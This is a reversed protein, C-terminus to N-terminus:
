TGNMKDVTSRPTPYALYASPSGVAIQETEVFSGASSLIRSTPTPLIRVLRWFVRLRSMRVAMQLWKALATASTLAARPSHRRIFKKASGTLRVPNRRCRVSAFSLKLAPRAPSLFLNRAGHGHCLPRRIGRRGSTFDGRKVQRSGDPDRNKQRVGPKSRNM